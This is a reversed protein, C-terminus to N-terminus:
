APDTKAAGEIDVTVGAIKVPEGPVVRAYLVPRAPPANDQYDFTIVPEYYGLPRLGEKIAKEVRARFRGDAVVEDTTITSLQVRANKELQGSLGEVKLRLNASYALPSTLSVAVVCVLPYRIM